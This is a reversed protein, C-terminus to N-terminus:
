ACEKGGRRKESRKKHESSATPSRSKHQKRVPPPAATGTPQEDFWPLAILRRSSRARWPWLAVLAAFTKVPHLSGASVAFPSFSARVTASAILRLPSSGFVIKLLLM